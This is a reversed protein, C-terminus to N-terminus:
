FSPYFYSLVLLFLVASVASQFKHCKFIQPPKFNRANKVKGVSIIAFIAVNRYGCCFEGLESMQLVKFFLFIQIAPWDAIYMVVRLAGMCACM